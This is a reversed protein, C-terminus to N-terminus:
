QLLYQFSQLMHLLALFFYFKLQLCELYLRLLVFQFWVPAQIIKPEILPKGHPRKFLEVVELKKADVEKQLQEDITASLCLREGKTPRLKEGHSQHWGCSTVENLRLYSVELVLTIDM